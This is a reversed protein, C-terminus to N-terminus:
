SPPLVAFITLQTRLDSRRSAGETAAARQLDAIMKRAHDMVRKGEGTDVIRVAGAHDGAGALNITRALEAM